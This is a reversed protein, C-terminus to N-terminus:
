IPASMQSLPWLPSVDATTSDIHMPLLLSVWRRHQGPPPLAGTGASLLEAATPTRSPIVIENGACDGCCLLVARISPTHNTTVKTAEM